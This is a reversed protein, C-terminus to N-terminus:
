DTQTPLSFRFTTGHGQPSEVFINGGQALILARAIALGLGAGGSQRNRSSDARYFREFIHPLHKQPIGPGEDHVSCWTEKGRQAIEVVVAAGDPSFRMANDLLNDLVQAM